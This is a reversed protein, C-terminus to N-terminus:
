ENGKEKDAAERKELIARLAAQQETDDKIREQQAARLEAAERKLRAIEEDKADHDQELSEILNQQQAIRYEVLEQQHEFEEQTVQAVMVEAPVDLYGTLDEETFTLDELCQRYGETMEGDRGFPKRHGYVEEWERLTCELRAAAEYNGRDINASILRVKKCFPDSRSFGIGFGEAGITVKTFCDATDRAGTLVLSTNESKTSVTSSGGGASVDVPGTNATAGASAEANADAEGGEGGHGGDGGDGGAGGHGGRNEIEIDNCNEEGNCDGRSGGGAWATGVSVLLALAFLLAFYTRLRM